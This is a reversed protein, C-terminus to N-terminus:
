PVGAINKTFLTLRAEVGWEEPDYDPVVSDVLFYWLDPVELSGQHPELALMLDSCAQELATPDRPDTKPLRDRAPWYRIILVPIAVVARSPQRRYGEIHVAITPSSTAGAAREGSVIRASPFAAALKEIIAVRADTLLNVAM